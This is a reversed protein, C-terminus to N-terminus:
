DEEKSSVERYSVAGRKGRRSPMERTPRRPPKPPKPHKIPPPIRPSKVPEPTRQNSALWTRAGRFVDDEDALYGQRDVSPQRRARERARAKGEAILEQFTKHRKRVPAVASPVSAAVAEEGGSVPGAPTVHDIDMPLIPDAGSGVDMAELAAGALDVLDEVPKDEEADVAPVETSPVATEVPLEPHHIGDSLDDGFPLHGEDDFGTDDDLFAQDVEKGKRTETHKLDVLEDDGFDLEAQFEHASALMDHLRCRMEFRENDNADTKYWEMITDPLLTDVSRVGEPPPLALAPQQAPQQEQSSTAEQQDDGQADPWQYLGHKGAYVCNACHVGPAGRVQDPLVVCGRWLGNGKSCKACPAGLAGSVQTLAAKLRQVVLATGTGLHFPVSGARRANDILQNVALKDMLSVLTLNTPRTQRRPGDDESGEDQYKEQVDTSYARVAEWATQM